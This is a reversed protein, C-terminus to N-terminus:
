TSLFGVRFGGTTSIHLKASFFSKSTFDFDFHANSSFFFVQHSRSVHANAM